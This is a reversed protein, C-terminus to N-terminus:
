SFSRQGSRTIETLLLPGIATAEIACTRNGGHAVVPGNVTHAPLLTPNTFLSRSSRKHQADSMAAHPVGSGASTGIGDVPVRSGVTVAVSMGGVCVGVDEVAVWAGVSVATGRGM